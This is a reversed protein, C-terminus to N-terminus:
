SCHNDHQEAGSARGTGPRRHASLGAGSRSQNRARLALKANSCAPSGTSSPSSERRSAGTRQLGQVSGRCLAQAGATRLRMSAAGHALWTGSQAANLVGSGDLVQAPTDCQSRANARQVGRGKRPAGGSAHMRGNGASRVNSRWRLAGVCDGAEGTHVASDIAQVNLVGTATTAPIM